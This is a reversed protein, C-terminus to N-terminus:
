RGYVITGFSEFNHRFLEVNKGLYLIAQGQLPAGHNGDPGLFRVRQRPFCVAGADKLLAQFWNTETANNVLVIAESVEGGIFHQLLKAVFRSILESAYPPNMWVRGQWEHQLGDDEVTFYRTAGVVKNAIETSAPDLDIGGLVGRAADIYEPPTYWENNGSNFSVHPREKEILPVSSPQEEQRKAQTYAIGCQPASEQWDLEKAHAGNPANGGGMPAEHAGNPADSLDRRVTAEGVGLVQAAQRQSAGDAILEKVAERREDISLKVYGGLRQQVWEQLSLGLATPIGQRQAWAIQRWSGVMIQGLSQTYEEADTVNMQEHGELKSYKMVLLLRTM